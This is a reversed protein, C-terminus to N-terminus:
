GLVLYGIAWTVAFGTGHFDAFSFLGTAVSSYSDCKGCLIYQSKM